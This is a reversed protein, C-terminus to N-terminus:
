LKAKNKKESHLYKIVEDYSSTEAFLTILREQALLYKQGSEVKSYHFIAKTVHGESEAINGLYFQTDNSKQSNNKITKKICEITEKKNQKAIIINSNLLASTKEFVIQEITQNEKPLWDLHDKSISTVISALNSKLINTADFVTSYVM